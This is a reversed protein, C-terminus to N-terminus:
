RAKGVGLLIELLMAPLSLSDPLPPLLSPALSLSRSRTLPLSPPSPPLSAFCSSLLSGAKSDGDAM